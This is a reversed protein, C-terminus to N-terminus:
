QCNKMDVEVDNKYCIDGHWRIALGEKKGNVFSTSSMLDGDYSYEIEKQLKGDKFDVLTKLQGNIYWMQSKKPQGDSGRLFHVRKKGNDYYSFQDGVYHNNDFEFKVPFTILHSENYSQLRQFKGVFSIESKEELSDLDIFVWPKRNTRFFVDGDNTVYNLQTDILSDAGQEGAIKIIKDYSSLKESIKNSDNLLVEECLGLFQLKNIDNANGNFLPLNLNKRFENIIDLKQNNISKIVEDNFNTGMFIQTYISQENENSILKPSYNINLRDCTQSLLKEKEKALRVELKSDYKVKFDPANRVLSECLGLQISNQIMEDGNVFPEIGIDQRASNLEKVRFAGQNETTEKLIACTTKTINDIRNKKEAESEGCATLTFLFVFIFVISKLTM